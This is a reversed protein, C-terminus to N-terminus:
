GPQALGAQADRLDRSRGGRVLPRPGPACYRRPRAPRSLGPRGLRAPLPRYCILFTAEGGSWARERPGLICIEM